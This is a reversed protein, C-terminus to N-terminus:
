AVARARGGPFRVALFDEVIRQDEPSFAACPLPIQQLGTRRLLWIGSRRRVRSIQGARVRRSMASLTMRRVVAYTIRLEGSVPM